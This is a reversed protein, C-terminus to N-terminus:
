PRGWDRDAGVTVEGGCTVVVLAVLRRLLSFCIGGRVGRRARGPGPGGGGGGRRGCGGGGRPAAGAAAREVVEPGGGGARRHRGGGPLGRGPLEACKEVGEGAAAVGDGDSRRMTISIGGGVRGPGAAPRGAAGAGPPVAAEPQVPAPPARATNANRCCAAGAGPPPVLDPGSAVGGLPEAGAATAAAVAHVRRAGAGDAPVQVRPGGGAAVVAPPRPGGSSFLLGNIVVVDTARVGPVGCAEQDAYRLARV